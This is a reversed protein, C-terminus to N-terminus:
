KIYRLQGSISDPEAIAPERLMDYINVIGSDLPPQKRFFEKLHNIIKSYSTKKSLVETDFLEAYPRFANNKEALILLVMEELLVERNKEDGTSGTLFEEPTSSGNFIESGPFERIFTLLVQDTEEPSFHQNLSTLADRFLHPNQKQRYKHFILHFIEDILGMGNIEGAKAASEPNSNLDRLRNIREAFERVAKYDPFIANGTSSYLTKDFGYLERALRSIHFERKNLEHKAMEPQILKM